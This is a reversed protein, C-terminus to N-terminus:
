GPATAGLAAVESSTLSRELADTTFGHRFSYCDFKPLVM